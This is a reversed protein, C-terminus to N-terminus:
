VTPPLFQGGGGEPKWGPGTIEWKEHRAAIDAPNAMYRAKCGATASRTSTGSPTFCATATM